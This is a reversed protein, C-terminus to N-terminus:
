ETLSCLLNRKGGKDLSSFAFPRSRIPPGCSSQSLQPEANLDVQELLLLSLFHSQLPVCPFTFATPQTRLLISSRLASFFLTTTFSYPFSLFHAYLVTYTHTYHALQTTTEVTFQLFSPPRPSVLSNSLVPALHSNQKLSYKQSIHNNALSVM